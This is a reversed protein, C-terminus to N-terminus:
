KSLSRNGSNSIEQSVEKKVEEFIKKTKKDMTLGTLLDPRRLLTLKLKERLRWEEVKQHNGSLLIEPVEWGRFDRPRTYHPCDLLGDSFSDQKASDENGLVGPLLRIIADLIVLTATEGGTLVYDGLSIEDTVLHTRVREDIGEYHGCIFILQESKALEEAKKQNFLQGTPCPMIIRTNLNQPISEVALFIPEAKLLMGCGGGFPKEDTIKHKDFAFDRINLLNCDFHGFAAGRKLISSNLPSTFFEPFLTLINIQM